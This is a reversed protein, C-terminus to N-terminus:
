IVSPEHCHGVLSVAGSVRRHRLRAAPRPLRGLSLTGTRPGPVRSARAHVPAARLVGGPRPPRGGGLARGAALGPAPEGAAPSPAAAPPGPLGGSAGPLLGAFVAGLFFFFLLDKQFSSGTRM